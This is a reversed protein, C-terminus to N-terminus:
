KKLSGRLEQPVDDITGLRALQLARIRLEPLQAKVLVKELPAHSHRRLQEGLLRAQAHAVHRAQHAVALPRVERPGKAAAVPERGRAKALAGPGM